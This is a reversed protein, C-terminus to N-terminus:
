ILSNRRYKLVFIAIRIKRKKKPSLYKATIIIGGDILSSNADANVPVLSSSFNQSYIKTIFM